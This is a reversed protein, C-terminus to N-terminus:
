RGRVSDGREHLRSGHLGKELLVVQAQIAAIEAVHQRRQGLCRHVEHDRVRGISEAEHLLVPVVLNGSRLIPPGDRPHALRTGQQQRKAARPGVVPQSTCDLVGAPLNPVRQHPEVPLPHGLAAVDALQDVFRFACLALDNAVLQVTGAVVQVLALSVPAVAAAVSKVGRARVGPQAACIVAGAVGSAALHVPQPAAKFGAQSGITSAIFGSSPVIAWLARVQPTAPM